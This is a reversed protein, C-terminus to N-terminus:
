KSGRKGGILADLSYRGPGIFMIVVFMSLFLFPLEKRSFEDASHAMFVAVGMTVAPFFASVRTALGAAVLCAFVSEGLAAAWAFVTPMPFGLDGVSTVMRESVPLKDFGHAIALSLGASLRLLLLGFDGWRSGTGKADFLIKRLKM